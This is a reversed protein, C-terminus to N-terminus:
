RLNLCSLVLTGYALGYTVSTSAPSPATGGQGDFTVTYTWKAYLTQAATLTVITAATVETGTGGAGTWWGAFTYGTRTTAALVDYADDYTVIKSAPDANTGGQADFTVTYTDLTWLAAPEGPENWRGRWPWPGPFEALYYTRWSRYQFDESYQDDFTPCM